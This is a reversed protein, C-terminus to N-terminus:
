TTYEANIKIYEDTLDCGWARGAAKGDNLGVRIQVEDAGLLEAVAAADFLCPSGDRAVQQDGIHVEVRDPDLPVGANGVAMMIRGWNPDRGFVATKVLNSAVM